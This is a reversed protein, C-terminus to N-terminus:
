PCPTTPSVLKCTATCCKGPMGNDAGLDCVEGRVTNIKGDGCSAPTCDANCVLSAGGDDCNEKTAANFIADGCVPKSCDANCDVTAAGSSDCEEYPADMVGNGCSAAFLLRATVAERAATPFGIRVLVGGAFDSTPDRLAVVSLFYAGGVQFLSAPMAITSTATEFTAVPADSDDSLRTVTVTYHTVAVTPTWSVTVPHMGDFPVAGPRSADVGGVTIAHVPAVTAAVSFFSALSVRDFASSFYSVARHTGRSAYRWELGASSLVSRPVDEPFPDLYPVAVQTFELNTAFTRRFTLTSIGFSAGGYQSSRLRASMDIPFHSPVDLGQLFTTPDMSVLVSRPTPVVPQGTIGSPQGDVLTLDATFADVVSEQNQGPLSDDRRLRLVHLRDGKAADLLPLGQWELEVDIPTMDLPTSPALSAGLGAGFSVARFNDDETVASQTGLHITALTSRASIQADPRGLRNVGLDLTRASTQYFAPTTVGPSLVLLMYPGAPVGPITFTGDAKGDIDIIRFGTASDDPVYAQLTTTTLDRSKLATTTGTVHFVDAASGQVEPVEGPTTSADPVDPVAADSAATHLEGIGLISNCGTLGLVVLARMGWM